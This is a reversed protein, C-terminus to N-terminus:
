AGAERFETVRGQRILGNRIKRGHARALEAADTLANGASQYAGKDMLERARQMAAEIEDRAGARM